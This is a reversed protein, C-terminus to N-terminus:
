KIDYRNLSLSDGINNLVIWIRYNGQEIKTNAEIKIIGNIVKFNANNGKIKIIM